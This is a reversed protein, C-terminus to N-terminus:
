CGDSVQNLMLASAFAHALCSRAAPLFGPQLVLQFSAAFCPQQPCCSLWGHDQKVSDCNERDRRRRVLCTSNQFAGSEQEKFWRLGMGFPWGMERAPLKLVTPCWIGKVGSTTSLVALSQLIGWPVGPVEWTDGANVCGESAGAPLDVSDERKVLGEWQEGHLAACVM